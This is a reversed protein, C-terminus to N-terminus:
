LEQFSKLYDMISPCINSGAYSPGFSTEPFRHLPYISSCFSSNPTFIPDFAPKPEGRNINCNDSLLDAMVMEEAKLEMSPSDPEAPQRADYSKNESIPDEDDAPSLGTLKQVLAMFDRAHTHIVKPSHTYIIVPQRQQQPPKSAAADLSNSSSAKHILHSSKSVKLPALRPGKM